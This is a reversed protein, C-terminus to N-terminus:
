LHSGLPFGLCTLPRAQLGALGARRRFAQRRPVRLKAAPEHPFGLSTDQSPTQGAPDPGRGLPYACNRKGPVGPLSLCWLAELCSMRTSGRPRSTLLAEECPNWRGVQQQGSVLTCPATLEPTGPGLDEPTRLRRCPVRASQAGLGSTGLFM